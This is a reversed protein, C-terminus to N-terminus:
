LWIGREDGDAERADLMRNCERRLASLADPHLAIAVGDPGYVDLSQVCGCEVETWVTCEIANEGGEDDIPWCTLAGTHYGDRDYAIAFDHSDADCTFLPSVPLANTNSAIV